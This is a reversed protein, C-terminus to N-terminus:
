RWFRATGTERLDIQLSAVREASRMLGEKTLVQHVNNLALEFRASHEGRLKPLVKAFIAADLSGTNAPDIGAVFEMYRLVDDITRWAFHLRVPALAESLGNLVSKARTKTEVDLNTSQWMPADEVCIKWFELTYARDLVKDSLGHTTEDMNLTGIIALNSPYQVKRPVDSTGEGLQHLDVWGQTEMASLIPALYQEPHSLNMEDLIAVYPQTPDEAARLLLELFPASRYTQTLPNVYGLLPSPDFWGPQVPVIRVNEHDNNKVDCLALSYNLALQTKGSGSIGSLVAFHRVPHFWLGAHLQQVLEIPYTLKGVILANLRENLKSFTATEVHTPIADLKSSTEEQLKPLCEPEWTIMEAWRLGRQTLQFRKLPVQEIINLSVLWGVLSSPAFDSTWGPNVKKLLLMVDLKSQAGNKLFHIVNDVGLVRTLLHDSLEDPDSSNLLNIGRATLQYIGNDLASLNFERAISNIVTGISTAALDPNEHRIADVFEERSLGDELVQVFSMLSPFSGKMATLGKRRKIAALPKLTSDIPTAPSISAEDTAAFLSDYLYWPLCLRKIKEPINDSSVAGLLMNLRTKIHTHMQVPHANRVGGMALHLKQLRGVDAITTFNDPFIACLVRNIKLKPVRDCLSEMRNVLQEYLNKLYNDPDQGQELVTAIQEAFWLRFEENDLAPATKVSGNGTSSVAQEEWLYQLFKRDTLAGPVKEKVDGLFLTLRKTWDDTYGASDRLKEAQAVASLLDADTSLDKTM